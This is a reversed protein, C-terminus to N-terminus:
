YFLKWFFIKEVVSIIIQICIEIFSIKQKSMKEFPLLIYFICAWLVPYSQFEAMNLALAVILFTEINTLKRSSKNDDGAIVFNQNMIDNPIM